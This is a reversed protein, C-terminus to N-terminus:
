AKESEYLEKQNERATGDLYFFKHIRVAYLIYADEFSNGTVDLYHDHYHHDHKPPVSSGGEIWVAPGDENQVPQVWLNAHGGECNWSHDFRDVQIRHWFMPHYQIFAHAAVWDHPNALFYKAGKLFKLYNAFELPRPDYADFMARWGGPRKKDVGGLVGKELGEVQLVSDDFSADMGTKHIEAYLEEIDSYSGMEDAYFKNDTAIYRIISISKTPEWTLKEPMVIGAEAMIAEVSNFEEETELTRDMIPHNLIEDSLM